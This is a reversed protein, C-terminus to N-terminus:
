PGQSSSHWKRGSERAKEERVSMREWLSLFPLREKGEPSPLLSHSVLIKMLNITLGMRVPRKDSLLDPIPRDEEFLNGRQTVHHPIGPVTVRAIRPM